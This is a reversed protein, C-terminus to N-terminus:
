ADCDIIWRRAAAYDAVTEDSGDVGCIEISGDANRRIDGVIVGRDDALRRLEAIEDRGREAVDHSLDDGLAQMADRADQETAYTTWDALVEVGNADDGLIRHGDSGSKIRLNTAM